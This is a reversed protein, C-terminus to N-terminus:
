KILKKFEEVIENSPSTQNKLEFNEKLGKYNNFFYNIDQINYNSLILNKSNEFIQNQDIHEDRWVLTPVGIIKCEEVVGGGDTIVFESNFIKNIFIDYEELDELNINQENLKNLLNFSKLKNRTPIHLHWVINFKDGLDCLTEVLLSMRSKNNINETRHISVVVNNTNESNLDVNTVSDYITNRSIEIIKGKVGWKSLQEIQSEGTAIIFDATKACLYRIISEPFHKLVGPVSHGAELLVLIGKNRKVFFSGILTSLTDGHVFCYSSKINKDKSFLIKILANISWRLLGGYTGIDQSNKSYEIYEYGKNIKQRLNSTIKSHQKLDYLKINVGSTIFENILPICKIFQAKTGIVFNIYL